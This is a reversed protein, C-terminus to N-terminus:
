LRPLLPIPNQLVNRPLVPITTAEVQSHGPDIISLYAGPVSAGKDINRLDDVRLGVNQFHVDGLLINHQLYMARMFSAIASGFTTRQFDDLADLVDEETEASEGVLAKYRATRKGKGELEQLEDRLDLLVYANDLVNDLAMSFENMQTEHEENWPWAHPWVATFERLIIYIPLDVFEDDDDRISISDELQWLAGYYVIGPHTRLHRHKMIHAVIPGETPDTTLKLVWRDTTDLPYVCGWTGCGIYDEPGIKALSRVGFPMPEGLQRLTATVAWDISPWWKRAITPIFSDASDIPAEAIDIIKVKRKM